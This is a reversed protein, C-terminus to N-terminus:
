STAPHVAARYFESRTFPVKYFSVEKGYTGEIRQQLTRSFDLPVGFILRTDEDYVGDLQKAYKNKVFGEYKHHYYEEERHLSFEAQKKVRGDKIVLSDPVVTGKIGIKGFPHTIIEETGFQKMFYSDTERPSLVRDSEPYQEEFYVYVVSEFAAGAFERYLTQREHESSAVNLYRELMSSLEQFESTRSFNNLYDAQEIKTSHLPTTEDRFVVIDHVAEEEVKSVKEISFEKAEKWRKAQRAEKRRQRDRELVGDIIHQHAIKETGKQRLIELSVM